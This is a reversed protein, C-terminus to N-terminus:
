DSEAIFHMPTEYRTDQHRMPKALAVDASEGVVVGTRACLHEASSRSVVKDRAGTLCLEALVIRRGRDSDRWGIQLDTLFSSNPAADNMYAVSLGLLLAVATQDAGQFPAAINILHRFRIGDNALHSQLVLKRSDGVTFSCLFTSLTASM